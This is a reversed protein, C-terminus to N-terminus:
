VNDTKQEHATSQVVIDYIKFRNIASWANRTKSTQYTKSSDLLDHIRLTTMSSVVAQDIPFRAKKNTKMCIYVCVHSALKNAKGSAAAETQMAMNGRHAQGTGDPSANAANEQKKTSKTRTLRPQKIPNKDGVTSQAGPLTVNWHQRSISRCASKPSCAVQACLFHVRHISSLSLSPQSERSSFPADSSTNIFFVSSTRNQLPREARSIRSLDIKLM